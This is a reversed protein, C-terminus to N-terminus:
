TGCPLGHRWWRRDRGPTSRATMRDLVDVVEHGHLRARRGVELDALLDDGDARREAEEPVTVEPITEASFRGTTEPSPLPPV